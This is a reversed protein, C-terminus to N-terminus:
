VVKLTLCRASGKAGSPPCGKGKKAGGPNILESQCQCSGSVSIYEKIPCKVEFVNHTLSAKGGRENWRWIIVARAEALWLSGEGGWGGILAAALLLAGGLLHHVRQQQQALQQQADSGDGDLGEADGVDVVIGALLVWWEVETRGRLFCCVANWGFLGIRILSDTGGPCLNWHLVFCFIKIISLIKQFPFLQLEASDDIFVFASVNLGLKDVCFCGNKWGDSIPQTPGTTSWWM